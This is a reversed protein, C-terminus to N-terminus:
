ARKIPLSPSVTTRHLCQCRAGAHSYEASFRKADSLLTPFTAVFHEHRARADEVTPLIEAIAPASHDDAGDM